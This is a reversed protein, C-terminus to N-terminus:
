VVNQFIYDLHEYYVVNKLLFTIKQVITSTTLLLFFRLRKYMISTTLLLFFTTLLLKVVNLFTTKKEYYVYNFTSFVYDKICNYVVNESLFM